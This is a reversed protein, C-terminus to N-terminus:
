LSCTNRVPSSHLRASGASIPRAACWWLPNPAQWWRRWKPTQARTTWPFFVHGTRETAEILIRAEISKAVRVVVCSREPLDLSRLLNAMMASGRDLDQGSYRLGADTELALATLDDAYARQQAAWLNEPNM